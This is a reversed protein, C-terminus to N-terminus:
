PKRLDALARTLDLSARKVAGNEKTQGISYREKDSLDLRIRALDWEKDYRKLAAHGKAIFREAEKMATRLAEVRM